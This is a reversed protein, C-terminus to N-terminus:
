LLDKVLVFHLVWPIGLKHLVRNFSFTSEPLFNEHVDFFKYNVFLKTKLFEKNFSLSSPSISECLACIRWFDDFTKVSYFCHPEVLGIAAPLVSKSLSDWSASRDHVYAEFIIRLAADVALPEPFHSLM